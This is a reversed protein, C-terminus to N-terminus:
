EASRLNLGIEGDPTSRRLSLRDAEIEYSVEGDLVALAADHLETEAPPCAMLTVAM